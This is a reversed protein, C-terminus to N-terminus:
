NRTSPTFVPSAPATSGPGSPETGTGISTRGRSQASTRTRLGTAAPKTSTRGLTSGRSARSAGSSGGLRTGGGAHAGASAHPVAAHAPPTRIPKIAFAGTLGTFNLSASPAYARTAPKSTSKGHTTQSIESRELWIGGPQATSGFSGSGAVWSSSGSGAASGGSTSGEAGKSAGPMANQAGFSGRGASWSSAGSGEPSPNAAPSNATAGPQPTANQQAGAPQTQASALGPLLVAAFVAISLRRRQKASNM